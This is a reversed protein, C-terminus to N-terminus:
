DIGNMENIVVKDKKSLKQYVLKYSTYIMEKIDDKTLEDTDMKISNWHVKNSYYGSTVDNYKERLIINDQPNGKLTIRVSSLMGFCKGLLSFYYCEWSDRYYVDAGKLSEAYQIYEQLLEDM